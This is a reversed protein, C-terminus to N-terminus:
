AANVKSDGVGGPTGAADHCGGDDGPDNKSLLHGSDSNQSYHEDYGSAHQYIQEPSCMLISNEWFGYLNMFMIPISLGFSIEIGM